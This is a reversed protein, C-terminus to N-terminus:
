VLALSRPADATTVNPFRLNIRGSQAQAGTVSLTAAGALLTRRTLHHRM